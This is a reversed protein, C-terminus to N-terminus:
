ASTLVSRVQDEELEETAVTLLLPLILATLGPVALMLPVQATALAQPEPEALM